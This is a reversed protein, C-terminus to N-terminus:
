PTESDFMAIPNAHLKLNDLSSARDIGQVKGGELNM